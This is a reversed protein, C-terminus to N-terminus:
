LGPRGAAVVNASPFFSRRCRHCYCAAENLEVPGDRTILERSRASCSCLQGCQPCPQEAALQDRHQDVLRQDVAAAVLQGAQHGWAEIQSFTVDAPLGGAASRERAMLEALERIKAQVAASPAAAKVRADKSM